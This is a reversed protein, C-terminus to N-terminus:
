SERLEAEAFLRRPRAIPRFPSSKITPLRYRVPRAQRGRAIEEATPQPRDHRGSAHWHNDNALGERRRDDREAQAVLFAFISRSIDPVREVPFQVSIRRHLQEATLRHRRCLHDFYRWYWLPMTVLQSKDAWPWSVPRTEPQKATWADM